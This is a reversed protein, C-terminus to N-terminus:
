RRRLGFIDLMRRADDLWRWAGEPPGEKLNDNVLALMRGVLRDKEGFVKLEIARDIAQRLNWHTHLVKTHALEMEHLAREYERLRTRWSRSANYFDLGPIM